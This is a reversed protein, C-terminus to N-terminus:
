LSLICRMKLGVYPLSKKKNEKELENKLSHRFRYTDNKRSYVLHQGHIYRYLSGSVNRQTEAFKAQQQQLNIRREKKKAFKAFVPLM